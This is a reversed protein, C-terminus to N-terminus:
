VDQSTDMRSLKISKQTECIPHVPLYDTGAIYALGLRFKM